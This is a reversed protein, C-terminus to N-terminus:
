DQLKGSLWPTNIRVAQVGDACVTVTGTAPQLPGTHIPRKGPYPAWPFAMDTYGIVPGWFTPKLQTTYVNLHQMTGVRLMERAEAEETSFPQLPNLADDATRTINLLEFSFYPGYADNMEALQAAVIDDSLDGGGTSNTFIHFITGIV